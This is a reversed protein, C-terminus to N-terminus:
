VNHCFRGGMLELASAREIDTMDEWAQSVERLIQTTNKFTDTDLMIDVKGHTLAKLKAQLTSTSEAMNETELGAEELEVKAGRLRLTLTKLATGVQEPNQIVSNAATVLAISEDITNGGEYLASASRQLAEGIGASTIAFNNGVENFRDIIGMTNSSEIGFAKMTSIISDTAEDVTDLGDAVNKYVIATEAMKASEEMTYGLRAFNASAETFDSLTSGIKGATGAATDLFKAYSEETEDTVKKLETLALDIEKVYNIGKRVESIAKYFVNAGAFATALQRGAKSITSKFTDWTNTLKTAGVQQAACEGRLGYMSIKFQEVTGNAHVLSANLTKNAADFKGVELTANGQMAAFEQAKRILEGYVTGNPDAKDLYTATGNAIASEMKRMQNDANEAEKILLKLDKTYKTIKNQDAGDGLALQQDLQKIKNIINGIQQPAAMDGTMADSFGLRGILSTASEMQKRANQVNKESKDVTTEFVAVQDTATGLAITFDKISGTKTDLISFDLKAIGDAGVSFNKTLAVAGESNQAIAQAMGELKEKTSDSATGLKQIDEVKIDASYAQKDAFYKNEYSVQKARAKISENGFVESLMSLDIDSAKVLSKVLKEIEATTLSAQVGADNIFASIQSYDTGISAIDDPLTYKESGLVESIKLESLVAQLKEVAEAKKNLEGQMKEGLMGSGGDMQQFKILRENATNIKNILELISQYQSKIPDTRHAESKQSDNLTKAANIYETQAKFSSRLNSYQNYAAQQGQANSAENYQKVAETMDELMKKADSVGQIDGFKELKLRMTEIEISANQMDRQMNALPNMSNKSVTSNKIAQINDQVAKLQNNFKNFSEQSEINKAADELGTLDYELGHLSARVKEIAALARQQVGEVDFKNETLAKVNQSFSQSELRLQASDMEETAAKLKYMQDVTIKLEDNYLKVKIIDDKVTFNAVSLNAQKAINQIMAQAQDVLDDGEFVGKLSFLTTENDKASRLQALAESINREVIEEVSINASGNVDNLADSAKKAAEAIKEEAVAQAETQETNEQIIKGQEELLKNNEEKLVDALREEAAIHAETQSTAKEAIVAQENLLKNEMGTVAVIKSVNSIQEESFVAIVDSLGGGQLTDYVNKIRVADYGNKQAYKAYWNTDHTGYPNDLRNSYYEYDAIVRSLASSIDKYSQSEVENAAALRSAESRLEQKKNYLETIKKSVDDIGDGLFTIDLWNSRNADIDLLRRSQLNARYINDTDRAYGNAVEQKTSFWTAGTHHGTTLISNSKAEEALGRYANVANGSNDVIEKLEYNLLEVGTTDIKILKLEGLEEKSTTAYIAISEAMERLMKDTTAFEVTLGEPNFDEDMMAQYIYPFQKYDINSIASRIERNKELKQDANIDSYNIDRLQNELKRIQQLADFITDALAELNTDVIGNVNGSLYSNTIKETISQQADRQPILRSLIFEHDDVADRYEDLSQKSFEYNEVLKQMSEESVGDAKPLNGTLEKFASAIKAVKDRWGFGKSLTEVSLAFDLEDETQGSYDNVLKNIQSKANAIIKQEEWIKKQIVRVKEFVSAGIDLVSDNARYIKSSDFVNIQAADMISDYGISAFIEGVTTGAIEAIDKVATVVDNETLKSLMHQKFSEARDSMFNDIISASQKDTLREGVKFPNQVNAYWQTQYRGYTLNNFEGNQQLALYNGQGLAQGQNPKGQTSDFTDFINPSNHFLRLIQGQENLLKAGQMLKNNTEDLSKGYNDVLQVVNELAPKQEVSALGYYEKKKAILEDWAAAENRLAQAKEEGLTTTGGLGFLSDVDLDQATIDRLDDYREKANDLHDIYAQVWKTKGSKGELEGNLWAKNLAHIAESATNAYSSFAKLIKGKVLKSENKFADGGIMVSVFEDWERQFSTKQAEMEAKAAEAQEAIIKDYEVPNISRLAADRNKQNNVDMGTLMKLVANSSPNGNHFRDMLNAVNGNSIDFVLELAHHLTKAEDYAEGMSKKLVNCYKKVAAVQTENLLTGDAFKLEKAAGTDVPTSETKLAKFGLKNLVNAAAEIGGYVTLQTKGNNLTINIEELGQQLGQIIANAITERDSATYGYVDKNSKLEFANEGIALTNALKQFNNKPETFLKKQEKAVEKQAEAVSEYSSTLKKNGDVVSSSTNKGVAENLLEIADAASMAGIRVKDLAEHYKDIVPTYGQMKSDLSSYADQLAKIEKVVNDTLVIEEKTLLSTDNKVDDFHEYTGILNWLGANDRQWVKWGDADQGIEYKGDMTTYVDSGPKKTLKLRAEVLKETAQVQEEIAATTNKVREFIVDQIEVGNYEGSYYENAIKDFKKLGADDPLIEVKKGNALKIIVRAYTKEFDELADDADSIEEGLEWYREEERSTLGGDMDKQNLEEFRNRKAQTVTSAYQEAIDQLLELKDELAGNEKQIIEFEDEDVVNSGTSARTVEALKETAEIQSEIADTVAIVSVYYTNDDLAQVEWSWGGVTDSQSFLGNQMGEEIFGKWEALEPYKEPDLASFFRKVATEAKKCSTTMDASIRNFDKGIRPVIDIVDELYENEGDHKERYEDQLTDYADQNAFERVKIKSSKSAVEVFKEYSSTSKETAQTQAEIATTIKQVESVDPIGYYEHLKSQIKKTAYRANDTIQRQYIGEKTKHFANKKLLDFIEQDIRDMTFEIRIRMKDKSDKGEWLKYFENEEFLSNKQLRKLEAIRGELRGINKGDNELAYPPFPIDHKSFQKVDALIEKIKELEDPEAGMFGELTKNKRYFKNAEVMVEHWYKMYEVKAELKELADEEDGRIVNTGTSGFNRIKSEIAAVKEDYFQYNKGWSAMQKDHKKINYNAPGAVMVSPYRAGIQNDRNIYQALNKSFRDMLQDLQEAKDPFQKKKEEVIAWLEDVSAKYSATASGEEYGWHSRNEKAIRAAKEDIEYYKSKAKTAEEIIKVEEKRADITEQIIDSTKNPIDANKAEEKGIQKVLELEESQLRGIKNQQAIREDYLKQREQNLEIEEKELKQGIIDGSVEGSSIMRSTMDLESQLNRVVNKFLENITKNTTKQGNKSFNELQRLESSIDFYQDLNKYMGNGISYKGPKDDVYYSEVISCLKIYKEEFKNRTELMKNFEELEKKAGKILDIDYVAHDVGLVEKGYNAQNKKFQARAAENEKEQAEIQQLIKKEKELEANIQKQTKINDKGASNQAKALDETAKVLDKTADTQEVVGKTDQIDKVEKKVPMKRKSKDAKHMKDQSVTLQDIIKKTDRLIQNGNKLAANNKDVSRSIDKIQKQLKNYSTIHGNIVDFGQQTDLAKQLDDKVKEAAKALAKLQNEAKNSKVNIEIPKELEAKQKKIRDDVKKASEENLVEEVDLILKGGGILDDYKGM